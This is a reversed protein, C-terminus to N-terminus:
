AIAMEEDTLTYDYVRINAIHGFLPESASPNYGFYVLEPSGYTVYGRIYEGAVYGNCYLKNTKDNIVLGARYLTKPELAFQSVAKDNVTGYTSELNYSTNVSLGRYSDSTFITAKSDHLNTDFDVLVTMTKAKSEPFNYHRDIYFRDNDRTASAGETYIYSTMMPLDEIQAGYIWLDTNSGDGVCNDSSGDASPLISCSIKNVSGSGTYSGSVWLRFWGYAIEEVGCDATVTDELINQISDTDFDYFFSGKGLVNTGDKFLIEPKCYRQSGRKVFISFTAVNGAYSQEQIVRHYTDSTSAIIGNNSLNVWDPCNTTNGITANSVDWVSQQFNQSWQAYNTASGEILLGKEEIRAVDSGVYEIKGQLTKLTANSGRTFTPTGRGQVFDATTRLPLFALPSMIRGVARPLSSLRMLDTNGELSKNEAKLLEDRVYKKGKQVYFKSDGGYIDLGYSTDASEVPMDVTTEKVFILGTFKMVRDSLVLCENTYKDYAVRKVDSSSGPLTCKSGPYFLPRELAYDTYIQDSTPATKSVKFLAIWSDLAYNHSYHEGIFMTSTTSTLDITGGRLRSVEVGDVYLILTQGARVCDFKHVGHPIKTKETNPTSLTTNENQRITFQLTGDTEIYLFARHTYTDGESIDWVVTDYSQVDVFCSIHFDGTGFVIGENNPITAYNSADFGKFGVVEANEAVHVTTLTGTITADRGNATRDPISESVVTAFTDIMVALQVNGRMIGTNYETTINAIGGLQPTHREQIIYSLAASSGAYTQSFTVINAPISPATVNTGTTWKHLFFDSIHELEPDEFPIYGWGFTNSECFRVMPGVLEVQNIYNNADKSSITVISSIGKPGHVIAVGGETAVGVTPRRMGTVIDTSRSQLLTLSIDHMYNSPLRDVSEYVNTMGLNNNRDSIPGRYTTRGVTSYYTCCDRLFDIEMLNYTGTYACVYLIGNLMKAAKVDYSSLMDDRGLDTSFVMWMPVDPRTLDYIVIQNKAVIINVETPFARTKGRYETDLDENYWSTHRCKDVWFPDDDDIVNHYSVDRLNEMETSSDIEPTSTSNDVYTKVSQQTPLKEDSDSQMDDEDVVFNFTKANSTTTKVLLEVPEWYRTGDADSVLYQNDYPPVGINGSGGTNSLVFAKVSGQTPVKERSASSFDDEDLVWANGSVDVDTNMTIDTLSSPIRSDLENLAVYAEGINGCNKLIAEKVSDGGPNADINYPPVYMGSIPNGCNYTTGATQAPVPPKSDPNAPNIPLSM